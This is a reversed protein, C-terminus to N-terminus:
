PKKNTVDQKNCTREKLHVAHTKNDVEGHLRYWLAWNNYLVDASHRM